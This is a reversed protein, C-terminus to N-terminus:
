STGGEGADKPEYGLPEAALERLHMANRPSARGDAVARIAGSIAAARHELLEARQGSQGYAAFPPDLADAIVALLERVEAADYTDQV